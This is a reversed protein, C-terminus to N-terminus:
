RFISLFRIFRYKLKQKLSLDKWVYCYFSHVIENRYWLSNKKKWDDSCIMKFYVLYSLFLKQDLHWKDKVIEFSKFISSLSAIAYATSCGYKVAAGSESLRFNYSSSHYCFMSNVRLLYEHVFCADEGVKMEENYLIESILRRKFFLASPARFIMTTLFINLFSSIDNYGNIQTYKALREDKRETTSNFWVYPVIILDEDRGEIANLYSASVYDDSDIFTVWKGKAQQLGVNRASSVGGNKKHVVSVRSDRNVYEDCLAPSGDTSGDDILLLEYDDFDQLLISDVCQRLTSEANYVPIIISVTVM